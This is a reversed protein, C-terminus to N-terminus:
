HAAGEGCGWGDRGYVRGLVAKSESLKNAVFWKEIEGLYTEKQSLSQGHKVM